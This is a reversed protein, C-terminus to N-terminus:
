ALVFTREEDRAAQPLIAQDLIVSAGRDRGMGNVMGVFADIALVLRASSAALVALGSAGVLSLAALLRRRGVRDGAVTALLGGAAVGTLGAGVVAGIEAADLRLAALHFGMLVGGMATAAARLFAAAYLLRRVNLERADM